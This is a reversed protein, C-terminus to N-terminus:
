HPIAFKYILYASILAGGVGIILQVINNFIYSLTKSAIDWLTNQSKANDNQNPHFQQKINLDNKELSSHSTIIGVSSGEVKISHDNITIGKNDDM